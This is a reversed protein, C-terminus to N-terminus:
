PITNCSLHRGCMGFRLDGTLCRTPNAQMQAKRSVACISSDDLKRVPRHLRGRRSRSCMRIGGVGDSVVVGRRIPPPITTHRIKVRFIGGACVLVSTGRSVETKSLFFSVASICNERSKRLGRFRFPAPNKQRPPCPPIRVWSGRALSGSKSDPGNHGSRYRDTNLQHKAIIRSVRSFILPM